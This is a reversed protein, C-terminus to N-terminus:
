KVLGEFFRIFKWFGMPMFYNSVNSYARDTDPVAKWLLEGNNTVNKMTHVSCPALIEPALGVNTSIIPCKSAACEVVSQPGGEWRAGVVYLNIANYLENLQQFTTKEFYHYKIGAGALRHMVYQRRWGALVVELNPHTKRAEIICDCFVDPGKEYKPTTLDSGETDRQFSGILYADQPLNLKERLSKKDDICYWMGQNVWFPHQLVPKEGLSVHVADLAENLQLKSHACPVHWADTVVSLNLFNAKAQPKPFFKGPVIHHLTTVVKKRRLLEYPLQDFCWDAALWIVDADDPNRTSIEPNNAYWERVFRDVVWDERPPLVFVRM